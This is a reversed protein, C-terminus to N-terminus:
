SRALLPKVADFLHPYPELAFVRASRASAPMSALWDHLVQPLERSPCASLARAAAAPDPAIAFYTVLRVMDRERSIGALIEAFVGSAFPHADVRLMEEGAGDLAPDGGRLLLARVRPPTTAGRELAAALSRPADPARPDAPLWSAPPLMPADEEQARPESAIRLLLAGQRSVLAAAETVIASDPSSRRSTVRALVRELDSRELLCLRRDDPSVDRDGRPYLESASAVLALAAGLEELPRPSTSARTALEVCAEFVPARLDPSARGLRDDLGACAVVVAEEVAAGGAVGEAPSAEDDASALAALVLAALVTDSAPLAGDDAAARAHRAVHRQIRDLSRSSAGGLVRALSLEWAGHEGPDHADRDLRVRALLRAAPVGEFTARAVGLDVLTLAVLQDGRAAFPLPARPATAM